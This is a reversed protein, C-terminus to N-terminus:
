PRQATPLAEAGRTRSDFLRERESADNPRILPTIENPM